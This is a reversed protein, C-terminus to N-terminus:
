VLLVICLIISQRRVDDIRDLLRIDHLVRGHKTVLLGTGIVAMHLFVLLLLLRQLSFNGLSVLM